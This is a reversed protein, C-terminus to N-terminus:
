SGLIIRLESTGVSIKMNVSAEPQNGTSVMVNIINFVEGFMIHHVINMLLTALTYARNDWLVQV